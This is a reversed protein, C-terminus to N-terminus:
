FMPYPTHNEILNEEEKEQVTYLLQVSASNLFIFKLFLAGSTVTFLLSSFEKSRQRSKTLFEAEPISGLMRRCFMAFSFPSLHLM